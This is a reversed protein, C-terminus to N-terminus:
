AKVYHNRKPAGKRMVSLYAKQWEPGQVDAWKEAQKVARNAFDCREAWYGSDPERALKRFWSKMTRLWIIFDSINAPRFNM